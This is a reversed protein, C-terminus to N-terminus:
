AGASGRRAYARAVSAKSPSGALFTPHKPAQGSSDQFDEFANAEGSTSPSAPVGAGEVLMSVVSRFAPM